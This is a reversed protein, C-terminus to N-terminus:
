NYMDEGCYVKCHNNFDPGSVNKTQIDTENDEGQIWRVDVKCGSTRERAVGRM